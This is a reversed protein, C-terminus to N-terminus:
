NIYGTTDKWMSISTKGGPSSVVTSQRRATSQVTHKEYIFSKAVPTKSTNPAKRGTKELNDYISLKVKVKTMYDLTM